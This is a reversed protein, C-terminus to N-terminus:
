KNCYYWADRASCSPLLLMIAAICNRGLTIHSYRSKNIVNKHIIYKPM